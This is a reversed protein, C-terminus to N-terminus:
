EPYPLSRAQNKLDASTLTSWVVLLGEIADGISRSSPVLIVGPTDRQAVFNAFHALMTKVDSTVLIRGDDTAIM